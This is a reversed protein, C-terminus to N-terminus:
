GNSFEDKWCFGKTSRKDEMM